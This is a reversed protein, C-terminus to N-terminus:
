NPPNATPELSAGGLIAIAAIPAAANNGTPTITLRVYRKDGVYGIKRCIGDDAQNFGALAATGNIMDAPVAVGDSLNAQDGHTITVAFTAAASALTGTIIAFVLQEFGTTDIIASNIAVNDSAGGTPQIAPRINITNLLDRM